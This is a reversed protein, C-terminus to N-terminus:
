VICGHLIDKLIVSCSQWIAIKNQLNTVTEGIQKKIIYKNKIKSLKCIYLKIACLIYLLFSSLQKEFSLANIKNLSVYLHNFNFGFFVKITSIILCLRQDYLITNLNNLYSIIITQFYTCEIYQYNQWSKFFANCPDLHADKKSHGIDHMRPFEKHLQTPHQRRLRAYALPLLHSTLFHISAIAGEFSSYICICCSWTCKCLLILSYANHLSWAKIFSWIIIEHSQLSEWSKKHGQINTRATRKEKTDPAPPWTTVTTRTLKPLNVNKQSGGAWILLKNRYFSPM